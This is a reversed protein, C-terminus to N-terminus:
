APVSSATTGSTASAVDASAMVSATSSASRRNPPRSAMTATAPTMAPPTGSQSIGTSCCSATRSAFRRETSTAALVPM